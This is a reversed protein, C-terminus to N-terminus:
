RASVIKSIASPGSSGPDSDSEVIERGKIPVLAVIHLRFRKSLPRQPDHLSCESTFMRIDGHNDVTECNNVAALSIIRFGFRQELSRQRNPLSREPRFM